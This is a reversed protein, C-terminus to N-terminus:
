DTFRKAGERLMETILATVNTDRRVAELRLRRWLDKEIPLMIRHREPKSLKDTL